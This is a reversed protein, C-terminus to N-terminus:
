KRCEVNGTLTSTYTGDDNRVGHAVGHGRTTALAATGFGPVLEWRLALNEGDFESRTRVVVSGAGCQAIRGRFVGVSTAAYAFKGGAVPKTFGDGAAREMGAFSGAYRAQQTTPVVCAGKPDCVPSGVPPPATTVDAHVPVARAPEASPQNGLSAGECSVRGRFTSSIRTNTFVPGPEVTGAGSVNSLAGTGFGRVVDWTGTLSELSSVDGDEFRRLVLTGTGCSAATGRLVFTTAGTFRTGDLRTGSAGTVHGTLSGTVTGRQSSPLPCQECAPPLISIPPGVVTFTVSIPPDPRAGITSTPRSGLPAVTKTRAHGSGCGCAAIVLAVAITRRM